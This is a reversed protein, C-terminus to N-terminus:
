KNKSIRSVMTVVVALLGIWILFKLASIVMGIVTFLLWIALQAPKATEGPVQLLVGRV